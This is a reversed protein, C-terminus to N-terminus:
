WLLNLGFPIQRSTTATSTTVGATPSPGGTASVSASNRDESYACNKRAAAMRAARLRSLFQTGKVM